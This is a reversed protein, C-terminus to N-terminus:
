RRLIVVLGIGIGAAGIVLTPDVPSADTPTASPWPTPVKLTSKKITTATKVPTATAVTTAVTMDEDLLTLQAYFTTRKGELVTISGTYDEYGSKQILVTYTGPTANPYTFVSTGVKTGNLWITAGAPNTEFYVSSGTATEVPTKITYPLGFTDQVRVIQPYPYQGWYNGPPKYQCVFYEVNQTVNTAKGCGCQTTTSWVIQTYHGVDDWHGTTSSGDGFPGYIFDTKEAGWLNVIQTWSVSGSPGWLAINEGYSGDSSSHVLSGISADHEAWIQASTALESSYTFPAVGVDNRYANHAAIIEPNATTIACLLLLTLVFSVAIRSGTKM